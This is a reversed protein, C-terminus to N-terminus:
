CQFEGIRVAHVYYQVKSSSTSKSSRHEEQKERTRGSEVARSSSKHTPSPREDGRQHSDKKPNEENEEESGSESESESSSEESEESSSEESSSGSEEEVDMKGGADDDSIDEIKSERRVEV